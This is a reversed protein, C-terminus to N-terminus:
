IVRKPYDTDVELLYGKNSNEESFKSLKKPKGM